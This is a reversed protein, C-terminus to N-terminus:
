TPTSDKKNLLKSIEMRILSKFLEKTNDDIHFTRGVIMGDNVMKEHLEMIKKITGEIKDM